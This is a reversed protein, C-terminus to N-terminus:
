GLDKRESAPRVSSMLKYAEEAKVASVTLVPAIRVVRQTSKALMKVRADGLLSPGVTVERRM